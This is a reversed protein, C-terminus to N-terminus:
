VLLWSDGLEHGLLGAETSRLVAQSLLPESAFARLLEYHSSTPDHAGTMLAGVVRPRHSPGLRLDTEGEGPRVEGHTAMAGELARA